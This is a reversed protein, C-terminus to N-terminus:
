GDRLELKLIKKSTRKVRFREDIRMGCVWIIRDADTIVLVESKRDLPVKEDILFDSVKKEGKKMGLPRFADGDRWSRVVLQNSFDGADVFEIQQDTAFAPRGDIIESTLVLNGVEIEEGPTFNRDVQRVVIPRRVLVLTDRDRLAEIRGLIPARAGTEKWLLRLVRDITGGPLPPLVFSESLIRQLVEGRLAAHLHRLMAVDLTVRDGGKSTTGRVGEVAADVINSLYRDVDLMLRATRNLTGVIGQHLGEMMPLLENRVRNRTFEASGNSPDERWELATREAIERVEDASFGLLPRALIASDGLRRTPPIGALGTVGSGRMLNILLTEANDSATHGTMVVDFTHRRALRELFAYRERRAVEEISGGGERAIEKIDASGIYSKMQRAHAQERVFEADEGSEARLRHDFHAVAVTLNLAPAIRDIAALLLMSDVGGSVALLVSEGGLLIEHSRLAERFREAFTGVLDRKKRRKAM